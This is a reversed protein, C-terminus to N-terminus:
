ADGVARAQRATRNPAFVLNAALGCVLVAAMGLALGFGYKPDGYRDGIMGMALPSAVASVCTFFLIVGAAAGQEAKAFCGIGRANLTPYVVSMFLGSLPLAVIAVNPGAMFAAGFCAFLAGSCVILVVTWALRRLMWGGLFRGAARLVFFISLAYGGLGTTAARQAGLFTPMWVYIATETGVYLVILACIFLAYPNAFFPLAAGLDIRPRAAPRASQPYPTGIATFILLLCLAAAIVYLWKWSAGVKLLAGVVAPGVIAGVGFFGEVINMTATHDSASTSIDGILALSGAKFVGIALGSLFLLVLFIPFEDVFAFGFASAAFLTLGLVIAGKRGLQDALFGLGVGGLGIGAMVTYHFSGAVALSLHFSRSVQPIIVGVSDTTMAFMMFM